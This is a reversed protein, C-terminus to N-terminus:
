CFSFILSLSNFEFEFTAVRKVLLVSPPQHFTGFKSGGAKKLVVGKDTGKEQEV